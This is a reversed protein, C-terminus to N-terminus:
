LEVRLRERPRGPTAGSSENRRSTRGSATRPCCLELEAAEELAPRLHDPIHPVEGCLSTPDAKDM